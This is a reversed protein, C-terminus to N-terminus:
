DETRGRLTRGLHVLMQELKVLNLMVPESVVLVLLLEMLLQNHLELWSLANKTLALLVWTQKLDESVMVKLGNTYLNTLLNTLLNLKLCLTRGLHVVMLELKVLNLMVAESVVLVLLLEMLLQNQLELWSLANKTLALLGWTQKGM